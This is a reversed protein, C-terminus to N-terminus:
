FAEDVIQIDSLLEAVTTLRDIARSKVNQEFTSEGLMNEEILNMMTKADALIQVIRLRPIKQKQEPKPDYYDIEEQTFNYLKYLKNRNVESPRSKGQEWISVINPSVKIIKAVEPQTLKMSERKCLLYQSFTLLSM